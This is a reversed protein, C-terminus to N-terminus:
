EVNLKGACGPLQTKDAGWVRGTRLQIRFRGCPIGCRYLVADYIAAPLDWLLDCWEFTLACGELASAEYRLIWGTAAEPEEPAKTQKSTTCRGNHILQRENPTAAGCPFVIGKCNKVRKCDPEDCDIATIDIHYDSAESDAFVLDGNFKITSSDQHRKRAVTVIMSM